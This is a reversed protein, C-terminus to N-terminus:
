KREFDRDFGDDSDPHAAHATDAELEAQKAKRLEAASAELADAMALKRGEDLLRRDHLWNTLQVGIRVLQPLISIIAGIV